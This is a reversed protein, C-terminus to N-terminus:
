KLKEIWINRFQIKSGEAQFGIGGKNHSCNVAKNQVVGNVMFEITNGKCFIDCINWENEKKENSNVLKAATPKLKETSKYISDRVTASLGIGHVIIDGASLYKLQYQYHAPWIKDPGNTHIFIGSNTPNEPYRWEVHLHYNSYEKKTRLYGNPVGLTELVGNKVYFFAEPAISSDSLFISWGKLNKGNFLNKKQSFSVFSLLLFLITIKTKM